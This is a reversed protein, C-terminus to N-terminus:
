SGPTQCTGRFSLQDANGKIRDSFNRAKDRIKENRDIKFKDLESLVGPTLLVTYSTSSVALGYKTVDPSQLLVNTDPVVYDRGIPEALSLLLDFFPKVHDRFVLKADAINTPVGHDREDNRQIWSEARQQAKTIEDQTLEPDGAFVLRFQELWSNWHELVTRQMQRQQDTLAGWAWSPFGMFFGSEVMERNRVRQDSITSCDLFDDMRSVVLDLGIKLRQSISSM